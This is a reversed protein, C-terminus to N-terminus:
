PKGKIGLDSCCPVKGMEVLKKRRLGKTYGSCRPKTALSTQSRSTEPDESWELRRRTQSAAIHVPQCFVSTKVSPMKGAEQHTCDMYNNRKLCKAPIGPTYNAKFHASHVGGKSAKTFPPALGDVTSALMNAALISGVDILFFFVCQSLSDHTERVLPYFPFERPRTPKQFCRPGRCWLKISYTRNEHCPENTRPLNTHVSCLTPM